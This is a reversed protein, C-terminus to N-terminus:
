EQRNSCRESILSNLSPDDTEFHLNGYPKDNVIEDIRRRFQEDPRAKQQIQKKRLRQTENTQRHKREESDKRRPLVQPEQHRHRDGMLSRKLFKFTRTLLFLFYTLAVSHRRCITTQEVGCYERLRPKM